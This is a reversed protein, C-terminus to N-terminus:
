ALGVIERESSGVFRIRWKPATQDMGKPAFLRYSRRHFFSGFCVKPADVEKTPTLFAASSTRRTSLSESYSWDAIRRADHQLSIGGLGLIGVPNYNVSVIPM